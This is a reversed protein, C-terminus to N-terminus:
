PNWPNVLDISFGDFDAVNRTALTANRAAAIGAIEIDRFEVPRGMSRRMAAFQAAQLAAATDFPFVQGRLDDEHIRAFAEERQRSKRGQPMSLIGFRVELVTVSTLWVLDRPQRDLWRAVARDPEALMMASVVNTDLIIM